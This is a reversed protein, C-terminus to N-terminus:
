LFIILAILGILFGLRIYLSRYKKSESLAQEKKEEIEKQALSLYEFQTTKDSTGLNVLYNNFYENEELSLFNLKDMEKDREIFYKKVSCSFNNNKFNFDNVISVISRKTFSVENLIRKNFTDFDIYFDKKLVYKQSMKYGIFLCGLLSFIGFIINM